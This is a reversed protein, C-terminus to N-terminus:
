QFKFKFDPQDLSVTRKNWRCKSAKLLLCRPWFSFARSLSFWCECAPNQYNQCIEISVVHSMLSNSASVVLGHPDAWRQRQKQLSVYTVLRCCINLLLVHQATTRIAEKKPFVFDSIHSMSMQHWFVNKKREGLIHPPPYLLRYILNVCVSCLHPKENRPTCVPKRGLVSISYGLHTLVWDELAAIWGPNWDKQASFHSKRPCTLLM